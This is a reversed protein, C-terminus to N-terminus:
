RVSAGKENIAVCAAESRGSSGTGKKSIAHRLVQGNQTASTKVDKQAVDGCAANPDASRGAMGTGKTNIAHAPAAVSKINSRSTNITAAHAGASGGTSSPPNAKQMPPLKKFCFTNGNGKDSWTGGEEECKIQEASKEAAAPTTGVWSAGLVVLASAAFKSFRSM